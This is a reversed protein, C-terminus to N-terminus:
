AGGEFPGSGLRYCGGGAADQLQEAWERVMQVHEVTLGTRPSCPILLTSPGDATRQEAWALDAPTFEDDIWAFPREGMTRNVDTLKWIHASPDRRFVGGATFRVVPLTPLGIAPSIHRNAQQEWASAWWLDVLSTLSRLWEGHEPSLWVDFGLLTHHHFNPGPADPNLPGDVDLLFAPKPSM